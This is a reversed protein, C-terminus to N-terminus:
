CNKHEEQAQPLLAMDSLLVWGRDLLLFHDLQPVEWLALPLLPVVPQEEPCSLLVLPPWLYSRMATSAAAAEEESRSDALNLLVLPDRQALCSSVFIM